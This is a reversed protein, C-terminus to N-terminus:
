RYKDKMIHESMHKVVETLADLGQELGEIREELEYVYCKCEIDDLGCKDCKNDM